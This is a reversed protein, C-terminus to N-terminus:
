RPQLTYPRPFKQWADKAPSSSPRRRNGHLSGRQPPDVNPRDVHSTPRALRFTSVYEVGVHIAHNSRATLDVPAMRVSCTCDGVEGRGDDQRSAAASRYSGLRGQQIRQIRRLRYSNRLVVIGSRTDLPAPM